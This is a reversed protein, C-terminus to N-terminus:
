FREIWFVLRICECPRTGARGHPIALEEDTFVENLMDPRYRGLEEQSYLAM